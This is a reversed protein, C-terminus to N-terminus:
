VHPGSRLRSSRRSAFRHRTKHPRYQRAERRHQLPASSAYGARGIPEAGGLTLLSEVCQNSSMPVSSWSADGRPSTSLLSTLRALQQNHLQRSVLASNGTLLTTITDPAKSAMNNAPKQQLHRVLQQTELASRISSAAGNADPVPPMSAAGMGPSATIHGSQFPFSAIGLGQNTPLQSLQSNQSNTKSPCSVSPPAKPHMQQLKRKKAEHCSKAKDQYYKKDYFDRQQQPTLMALRSADVCSISASFGTNPSRIAALQQQQQNRQYDDLLHSTGDSLMSYLQQAPLNRARLTPSNPNQRYANVITEAQETLAELEKNRRFLDLNRANLEAAREKLVEHEIRRRARKRRSHLANLKRKAALRRAADDDETTPPEKSHKDIVRVRAQEAAEDKEENPHSHVQSATSKTVNMEENTKQVAEETEKLRNRFHLRRKQVGEVKVRLRTVTELPMFPAQPPCCASRVWYSQM